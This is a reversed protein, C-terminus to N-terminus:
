STAIATYLTDFIFLLLLFQIFLWTQSHGPWNIWCAIFALAYIPAGFRIYPIRRGLGSRTRDSIWGFLPDNVANWIAYIFASWGIFSAALGLYTQYFYTLLAGYTGQVLSGGFSCIGWVFKQRRTFIRPTISPQEMEFWRSRNRTFGSGGVVVLYKIGVRVVWPKASRPCSAVADLHREHLSSMLGVAREVVHGWPVRARRISISGSFISAAQFASFCSTLM